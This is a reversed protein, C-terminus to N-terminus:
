PLTLYAVQRGERALVLTGQPLPYLLLDKLRRPAEGAQGVYVTDEKLRLSLVIPGLTLSVPEPGLSLVAAEGVLTEWSPPRALYAKLAQALAQAQAQLGLTKGAEELLPTPDQPGLRALTAELGQRAFALLNELPAARFRAAQHPGHTELTPNEGKLKSYLARLLRLHAYDEGPSLLFALLRGQALLEFLRPSSREELRLHLLDGQRLAWVEFDGAPLVLTEELPHDEGELGLHWEGGVQALTLVLPGLPVRGPALPLTAMREGLTGPPPVEPWTGEGQPAPLLRLLDLVRGMARLFRQKEEELLLDRRKAERIAEKVREELRAMEAPTAGMRRAEELAQRLTLLDPKPLLNYAGEWELLRHLFRRIYTPTEEPLIPLLAPLDLATELFELLLAEGVKPDELDLLADSLKPIPYQPQFRAPNLDRKFAKEEKYRLLNQLFAHILRLEERHGRLLDKLRRRIERATQLRWVKRALPYLGTGELPSPDRAPPALDLGLPEEPAQPKPTALSRYRKDAARFRRALPGPLRTEALLRRLRLFATKGGKPTKGQLLDEVKYEYLDVLDSLHDM